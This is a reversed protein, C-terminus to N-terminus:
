QRVQKNKKAQEERRRQATAKSFEDAFREKCGPCVPHNELVGKVLAPTLTRCNYCPREVEHPRKQNHMAM